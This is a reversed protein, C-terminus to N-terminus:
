SSVFPKFIALLRFMKSSTPLSVFIVLATRACDRAGSAAIAM